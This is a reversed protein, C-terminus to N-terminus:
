SYSPKRDIEKPIVENYLLKEWRMKHEKIKKNMLKSVPVSKTASRIKINLDSIKERLQSVEKEVTRRRSEEHEVRMSMLKFRQSLPYIEYQLYKAQIKFNTKQSPGDRIIIPDIKEKLTAMRERQVSTLQKRLVKCANELESGNDSEIRYQEEMQVTWSELRIYYKKERAQLIGLKEDLQIYKNRAIEKRTELSELKRRLREILKNIRTIEKQELQQSLRRKKLVEEKEKLSNIKSQLTPHSEKGTPNLPDIFMDLAFEGPTEVENEPSNSDEEKQSEDGSSDDSSYSTNNRNQLTVLLSPEERLKKKPEQIIFLDDILNDPGISELNASKPGHQHPTFNKSKLSMMRNQTKTVTLKSTVHKSAM